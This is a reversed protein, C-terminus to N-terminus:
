KSFSTGPSVSIARTHEVKGKLGDGKRSGTEYGGNTKISKPHPIGM